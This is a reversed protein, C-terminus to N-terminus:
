LNHIHEFFTWGDVDPPQIGMQTLMIKIQERHETAHNIAQTLIIATPIPVVEDDWDVDMM